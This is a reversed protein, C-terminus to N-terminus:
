FRAMRESGGSAHQPVGDGSGVYKAVGCLVAQFLGLVECIGIKCQSFHRPYMYIYICIGFFKITCLMRGVHMNLVNGSNITYSKPRLFKSYALAEKGIQGILSKVM